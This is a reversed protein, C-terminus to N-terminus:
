VPDSGGWLGTRFNYVFPNNNANTQPVPTESDTESAAASNASLQASREANNIGDNTAAQGRRYFYASRPRDIMANARSGAALYAYEGMTTSRVGLTDRDDIATRAQERLDQNEVESAPRFVDLVPDYDPLDDIADFLGEYDSATYNFPLSTSNGNMFAGPLYTVDGSPNYRQFGEEASEPITTLVTLVKACLVSLTTLQATTLPAEILFSGETRRAAHNERSVVLLTEYAIDVSTPAMDRSSPTIDDLAACVVLDGTRAVYFHWCTASRPSTCALVFDVIKQSSSTDPLCAGSMLYQDDDPYRIVGTGNRTRSSHTARDAAVNSALRSIDQDAGYPHLLIREVDTRPTYGVQVNTSAPTIYTVNTGRPFGTSSLLRRFALSDPSSRLNGYYAPAARQRQGIQALLRALGERRQAAPLTM